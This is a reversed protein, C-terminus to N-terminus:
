DNAHIKKISFLQRLIEITRKPGIPLHSDPHHHWTIPHEYIKINKKYAVYLLEADFYACDFTVKPFLIAASEATFLKFGCQTDLFPFGL